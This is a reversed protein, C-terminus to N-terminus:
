YWSLIIRGLELKTNRNAKGVLATQTAGLLIDCLQILDNEKSDELRILMKKIKPYVFDKDQNLYSDLQVRYPLYQEFNDFLEQNPRTCRDKKDSVFEVEIEDLNYPSILWSIGAKLAMATFRNYCHFDKGFRHREFNKSARDVALLSFNAHECLHSEFRDLWVKAVKAKRGWDGGFSKPLKCFHIEEFYNEKKRIEYLCNLVEELYKEQVFILGILLWRKDPISEDHFVYYKTPNKWIM